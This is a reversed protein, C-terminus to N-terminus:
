EAQWAAQGILKVFRCAISPKETTRQGIRQVTTLIQEDMGGVPIVLLGGDNLQEVLLQPVSPAGATVLIRDYPCHDPWGLSGDGVRYSVNNFGLEGLQCQARGSLAEIREVTYVHKALKALIATQYGSGTGVELVRHQPETRLAETMLAVMYPQSITQDYGIPLARDDYASPRQAPPVFLERPIEAMAALVCQDSIDRGGLQTRVMEQRALRDAQYDQQDM